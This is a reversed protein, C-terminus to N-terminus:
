ATKAFQLLPTSFECSLRSALNVPEAFNAIRAFSLGKEFYKAATPM